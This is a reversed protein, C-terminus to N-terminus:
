VTDTKLRYCGTNEDYIMDIVNEEDEPIDLKEVFPVCHDVIYTEGLTKSYRKVLFTIFSFLIGMLTCAWGIGPLIAMYVSSGLLFNGFMAFGVTELFAVGNIVTTAIDLGYVVGKGYIDKDNCIDCVSVAFALATLISGSIKSMVSMDKLSRKLEECYKQSSVALSAKEESGMAQTVKVTDQSADIGGAEVQRSGKRNCNCHECLPTCFDVVTYSFSLITQARAADSLEEWNIFNIVQNAFMLVQCIGLAAIHLGTKIGLRGLWEDFCPLIYSGIGTVAAEFSIFLASLYGYATGWSDIEGEEISEQIANFVEQQWESLEGNAAIRSVLEKAFSDYIQKREEQNIIMEELSTVYAGMVISRNFLQYYLDSGYSLFCDQMEEESIYTLKQPCKMAIRPTDDFYNLMITIQQMASQDEHSFSDLMYLANENYMSYEHLKPAWEEKKNLYPVLSPSNRFYLLPYLLGSLKMYVPQASMSTSLSGSYYGNLREEYKNIETIYHAYSLDKNSALLQSLYAYYYDETLFARIDKNEDQEIIEAIEKPLETGLEPRSPDGIYKRQEDSIYYRMLINLMEPYDNNVDAVVPMGMYFLEEVMLTNQGELRARQEKTCYVCSAINEKHCNLITQWIEDSQNESSGTIDFVPPTQDANEENIWAHGTMHVYDDDFAVDFYSFKETYGVSPLLAGRIHTHYVGSDKKEYTRCYGLVSDEKEYRLVTYSIVSGNEMRSGMCLRYKQLFGTSDTFTLNIVSDASGKFPVMSQGDLLYGKVIRSGNVFSICGQITGDNWFLKEGNKETGVPAGNIFLTGRYYAMHSIRTQDIANDEFYLTFSHNKRLKNWEM